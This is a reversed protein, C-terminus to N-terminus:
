KVKSEVDGVEVLGALKIAVQQAALLAATGIGPNIEVKKAVLEGHVQALWKFSGGGAM